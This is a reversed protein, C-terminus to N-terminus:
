VVGDRQSVRGQGWIVRGGHSAGGQGWSEGWGAGDQVWSEGGNGGHSDGGRGGHSVGGSGWTFTFKGAEPDGVGGQVRSQGWGM